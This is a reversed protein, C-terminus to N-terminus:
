IGLVPKEIKPCYVEKRTAPIIHYIVSFGFHILGDNYKSNGRSGTFSPPNRRDSLKLTVPTISGDILGNNLDNLTPYEGSVDDLHDTWMYSMGLEAKLAWRFNLFYKVGIHLPISFAYKKYPKGGNFLQGETGYKRLTYKVSDYEAVPNFWVTQFGLGVYPSFNLDDLLDANRLFHYEGKVTLGDIRSRFNFGRKQQDESVANIDNADVSGRQYNIDLVVYPNLIVSVGGTGAINVDFVDKFFSGRNLDGQYTLGGVGVHIDVGQGFCSIASSIFVFAIILGKFYSKMYFTQHLFLLARPVNYYNVSYM